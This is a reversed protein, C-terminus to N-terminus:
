NQATTVADLVIDDAPSGDGGGGKVGASAINRVVDLGGSIKGFPTYNPPLQSDKYVLFFQSGNTNPGANAMAVTGAPYTAGSLNEDAFKYGPGGTGTGTPDGCQLVYIGETTLRHCRTHDFYREGALMVFSNVTRPARAADLDISITGCNSELAARYNANTDITMGPELLWQKGNPQVEGAASCGAARQPALGPAAVARGSVLVAIAVGAVVLGAWRLKSNRLESRQETHDGEHQSDRRAM